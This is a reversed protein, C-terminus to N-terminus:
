LTFNKVYKVIFMLYILFNYYNNPIPAPFQSCTEFNWVKKCKGRVKGLKESRYCDVKVITM